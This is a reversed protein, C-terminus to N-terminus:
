IHIHKATTRAREELGDLMNLPGLSHASDFLLLPPGDDDGRAADRHLGRARVRRGVALTFAVAGHGLQQM